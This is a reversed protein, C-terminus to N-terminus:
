AGRMLHVPLQVATLQGDPEVAGSHRGIRKVEPLLEPQREVCGSAELLYDLAVVDRTRIAFLSGGPRGAGYSDFRRIRVHDCDQRDALLRNIPDIWTPYESFLLEADRCDFRAVLFSNRARLVPGVPNLILVKSINPILM